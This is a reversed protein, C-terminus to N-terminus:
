YAAWWDACGELCSFHQGILLNGWYNIVRFRSAEFNGYASLNCKDFLMQYIAMLHNLTEREGLYLLRILDWTWLGKIKSEFLTRHDLLTVWHRLCLRYESCSNNKLLLIEWVYKKVWCFLGNKLFKELFVLMHLNLFFMPSACSSLERLGFNSQLRQPGPLHTSCQLWVYPLGRHGPPPAPKVWFRSPTGPSLLITVWAMQKGTWWEAKLNEFTRSEWLLSLFGM